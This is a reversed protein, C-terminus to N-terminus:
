PEPDEFEKALRQRITAARELDDAALARRYERRLEKWERYVEPEFEAPAQFELELDDAAGREPGTLLHAVDVIHFWGLELPEGSDLSREIAKRPHYQVDLGRILWRLSEDNRYRIVRVGINGWHGILGHRYAWVAATVSRWGSGVAHAVDKDVLHGFTGIGGGVIFVLDDAVQIDRVWTQEDWEAGAKELDERVAQVAAAVRSEDAPGPARFGQRVLHALDANTEALETALYAAEQTKARLDEWTSCEFQGAPDDWDRDVVVKLGFAGSADGAPYWGIDLLVWEGYQVQLLDERHLDPLDQAPVTQDFDGISSHVVEGTVLELGAHRRANSIEFEFGSLESYNSRSCGGNLTVLGGANHKPATIDFHDGFFDAYGIVQLLIDGLQGPREREEAQVITGPRAGRLRVDTIELGLRLKNVLRSFIRRADEVKRTPLHFTWTIRWTEPEGDVM